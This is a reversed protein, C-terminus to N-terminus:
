TKGNLKLGVAQKASRKKDESKVAEDEGEVESEKNYPEVEADSEEDAQADHPEVEKNAEVGYKEAEEDTEANYQEVEEDADADCQKSEEDAEVNYQKAEKDAEVSYQDVEEDTKADYQEAEEDDNVSDQEATKVKVYRGVKEDFEKGEINWEEWAPNYPKLPVEEGHVHQEAEADGEENGEEDVSEGGGDFQEGGEGGFQEGGENEEEVMRGDEGVEPGDDDSAVRFRRFRDLASRPERVPDPPINVPNILDNESGDEDTDEGEPFYPTQIFNDTVTVLFSNSIFRRVSQQMQRQQAQSGKPIIYEEDPESETNPTGSTDSSSDSGEPENRNIATDVPVVDDDVDM